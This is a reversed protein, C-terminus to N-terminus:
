TYDYILLSTLLHSFTIGIFVEDIEKGELKARGIAEKIVISGLQPASLSALSGNFSGVPTRAVSVLYIETM